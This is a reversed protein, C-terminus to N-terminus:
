RERSELYKLMLLLVATVGILIGFFQIPNGQHLNDEGMWFLFGAYLLLCAWQWFRKNFTLNRM